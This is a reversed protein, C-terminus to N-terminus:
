RRLELTMGGTTSEAGLEFGCSKLLGAMGVSGYACRAYVSASQADHVLRTVLHRGLGHRRFDPRVSLAFLELRRYWSGPLHEVLIAFAANVQGVQVVFARGGAGSREGPLPMAGQTVVTQVQRWLGSVVDPRDADCSFHGARSEAVITEVIFPVDAVSALHIRPAQSPAGSVPDALSLDLVTVGLSFLHAEQISLRGSHGFALKGGATL